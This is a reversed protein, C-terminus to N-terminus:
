EGPEDISNSFLCHSAVRERALAEIQQAALWRVPRRAAVGCATAFSAAVLLVSVHGFGKQVGFLQERPTPQSQAFFLKHWAAVYAVTTLLRQEAKDSGCGSGNCQM